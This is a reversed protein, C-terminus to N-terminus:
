RLLEDIKREPANKIRNINHAYIMTTNINTHRAMGQTEQISAGALLSLTVATHRFSHATLRSSDIGSTLMAEKAIRSISRTTLRKGHNRDSHSIFLPGKTRGTAKIYERIPRHTSETLLVFEDKSDHGKGQIYLLSEGGEQRIDEINARQAEITRLGTRILLNVLSFNRKGYITKTDIGTIVNHIQEITLSDKRFGKQSKAGKIGAAVNPSIKEAELYAYFGKVATIYTSVTNAAYNDLLYTKYALIDTRCIETQSVRSNIFNMFQKLSKRYTDKSRPKIDLSALYKEFIDFYGTKITQCSVPEDIILISNKM